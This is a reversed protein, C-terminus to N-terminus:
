EEGGEVAFNDGHQQEAHQRQEREELRGPQRETPQGGDADQWEDDEVQEHRGEMLLEDEPDIDSQSV